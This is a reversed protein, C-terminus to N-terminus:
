SSPMRKWKIYKFIIYRVVLIALILKIILINRDGKEHSELGQAQSLYEHRNATVSYTSIITNSDLKSTDESLIHMRIENGTTSKELLDDIYFHALMLRFRAKYENLHICSISDQATYRIRKHELIPDLEVAISDLSGSIETIQNAQHAFEPIFIDSILFVSLIATFALHARYGKENKLFRYFHQIM